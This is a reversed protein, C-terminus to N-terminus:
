TAVHLATPARFEWGRFPVPATLRLNPMADLLVQLMIVMQARAFWKGACFHAGFAFTAAGKRDRHIDFRDPDAFRDPDRNASALVAAVVSGAPITVGGFDTDRQVNRTATGIPAVWRCGEDVAIPLLGPDARVAALQAPDGLLGALTSGAGHGPEQMGGLLTIRLTPMIREPPRVQGPEMGSHLMHSLPSSDPERALRALLPLVAADIEAVTADSIARRAPDQEFNIAGQSLGHFWRQLTPGDVDLLGMSRALSLASVPEFYASILDTAGSRRFEDLQAEALPRVLRDVYDAVKGARYHPEIGGRLERHVPGDSTLIAPSGFAQHIPGEQGESPFLTADKSVVEVDAWRTVMWLNAAPVHAVPAQDRLRAYIPYPDRELAEITITDAFTV